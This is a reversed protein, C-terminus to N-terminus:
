QKLVENRRMNSSRSAYNIALVHKQRLEGISECDCRRSQPCNQKKVWGATDNSHVPFYHLEGPSWVSAHKGLASKVRWTTFVMQIESSTKTHASRFFVASSNNRCMNQHVYIFTKKACEGTAVDRPSIPQVNVPIYNLHIHIDLTLYSSIYATM